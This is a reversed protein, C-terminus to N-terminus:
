VPAEAGGELWDNAGNERGVKLRADNQGRHKRISESGSPDM